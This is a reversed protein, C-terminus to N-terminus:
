RVVYWFLKWHYNTFGIEDIANNVLRMKAELVGDIHESSLLDVVTISSTADTLDDSLDENETAPERRISRKESDGDM